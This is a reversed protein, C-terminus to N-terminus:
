SCYLFFPASAVTPAAYVTTGDTGPVTLSATSAGNPLPTPAGTGTIFQAAPASGSQLITPQTTSTAVMLALYYTGSYTTTYSTALTLNQWTSAAIAGTTQDASHAQQKYTNDLLATWWHTPGSAATTGTSFGIKKVNVGAPLFVAQIYLTGSVPAASTSAIHPHMTQALASDIGYSTAPSSIMSGTTSSALSTATSVTNSGVAATSGSDVQVSASAGAGPANEQCGLVVANTSTGTVWFAKARNVNSYCNYLANATGGSIKFGTGDQGNAAVITDAGCGNIQNAFGSMVAYGGGCTYAKCGSLTCYSTATLQFGQEANAGGNTTCNTMTNGNGGSMFFCHGGVSSVNVTEFSCGSGGSLQFGHSGFSSIVLDNFSCSTVPNSGSNAEVLVGIGTGTGPGEILLDSISIYNLTTPNYTIANATTSTQNIVSVGPGIGQLSVGNPVNLAASIKFTNGPFLLTGGGATSIANIANQIATTDDTSNNGAAGYDQPTVYGVLYPM